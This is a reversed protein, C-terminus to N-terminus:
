AFLLSHRYKSLINKVLPPAEAPVRTVDNIVQINGASDRTQYMWAALRTAAYNVDAPLTGYGFTGGITFAKNATEYNWSNGPRLRVAYKPSYNLPLLDYMDATLTGTDSTFWGISQVYNDRFYLTSGKLYPHAADAYLTGQLTGFTFQCDNEIMQSAAPILVTEILTDNSNDAGITFNLMRRVDALSCLITM